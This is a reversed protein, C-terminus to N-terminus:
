PPIPGVTLIWMASLLNPTQTNLARRMDTRDSASRVTYGEEDLMEALLRRLPDHNEVVLIHRKSSM